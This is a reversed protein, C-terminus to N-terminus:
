EMPRLFDFEVAEVDIAYLRQVRDHFAQFVAALDSEPSLGARRALLLAIEPTIPTSAPSTM